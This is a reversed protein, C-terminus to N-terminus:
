FVLSAALSTDLEGDSSGEIACFEGAHDGVSLVVFLTDVTHHIQMVAESELHLEFFEIAAPWAAESAEMNAGSQGSQQRLFGHGAGDFMQKEFTKGQREMEAEAAPITANVRNDRGGYLGLVPASVGEITNTAPSTGYFVVAAGLDAQMTAYSFSVGGGWCYGVVGFQGNSSPLSRAYTAAGDLRRAIEAADLRGILRRASGPLIDYSGGGDPGKGSLFDPAIALFGDAAFQDAVARAWDTLGFIEHIVIVIPAPDSREPYVVWADVADEGDAKYVIWEGHRPSTELRASAGAEDPPIGDSYGSVSGAAVVAVLLTMWIRRAGSRFHPVRRPIVPYSRNM